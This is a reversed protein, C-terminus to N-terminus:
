CAHDKAAEERALQEIQAITLSPISSGPRVWIQTNTGTAKKFLTVLLRGDETIAVNTISFSM